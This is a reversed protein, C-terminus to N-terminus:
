TIAKANIKAGVPAKLITGAGGSGVPIGVSSTPSNDTTTAADPATGWAVGIMTAETNGIHVLEGSQVVNTTTSGITLREQVRCSSVALTGGNPIALDAMGSAKVFSVIVTM